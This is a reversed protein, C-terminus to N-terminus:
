TASQQKGGMIAGFPLFDSVAAGLAKLDEPSLEDIVAPLEGTIRSALDLLADTEIGDYGIKIGRLHKATLPRIRLETLTKSGVTVPESLKIIKEEKM